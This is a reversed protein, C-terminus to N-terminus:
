HYPQPTKKEQFMNYYIDYEVKVELNEYQSNLAIIHINAIPAKQM